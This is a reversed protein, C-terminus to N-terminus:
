TWQEFYGREFIIIVGCCYYIVSEGEHRMRLVFPNSEDTLAACISKFFNATYISIFIVRCRYAYLPSIVIVSSM